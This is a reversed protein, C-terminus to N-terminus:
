LDDSRLSNKEVQLKGGTWMNSQPGGTWVSLKQISDENMVGAKVDQNIESPEVPGDVAIMLLTILLLAEMILRASVGKIASILLLDSQSWPMEFLM